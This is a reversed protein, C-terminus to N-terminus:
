AGKIKNIHMQKLFEIKRALMKDDTKKKTYGYLMSDAAKSLKAHHEKVVDGINKSGLISILTSFYGGTVYNSSVQYHMNKNYRLFLLQFEISRSDWQVGM